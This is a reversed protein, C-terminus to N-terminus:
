RREGEASARSREAHRRAKNRNGCWAMSCWRRRGRPDAFVWGCGVGPCAAVRAADPGTLLTAAAWAVANLPADVTSQDLVWTAPRAPSLSSAVAAARVEANVTAWDRRTGGGLLVAYLASRFTVARDVAAAGADPMAVGLRRQRAVAAPGLLGVHGAWVALHAHSHLYEKPTPSGWGARTNCFNLAPDGTVALPVVLGDVVVSAM